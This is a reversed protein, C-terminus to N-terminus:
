PPPRDAVHEPKEQRQQSPCSSCAQPWVHCCSLPARSGSRPGDLDMGHLSVYRMRQLSSALVVTTSPTTRRPCPPPAAPRLPPHPVTDRARSAASCASSLRHRRPVVDVRFPQALQPPSPTETALRLSSRRVRLLREAPSSSPLVVPSSSPAGAPMPRIHIVRALAGSDRSRLLHVGVGSVKWDVFILPLM